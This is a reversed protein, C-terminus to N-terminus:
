PLWLFFDFHLSKGFQGRGGGRSIHVKQLHNKDFFKGEYKIMKIKFFDFKISIIGFQHTKLGTLGEVVPHKRKSSGRFKAIFFTLGDGLRVGSKGVSHLRYDPM